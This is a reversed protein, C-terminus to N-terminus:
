FVSALRVTAIKGNADVEGWSAAAMGSGNMSLFAPGGKDGGPLAEPEQRSGDVYRQYVLPTAGGSGVTAWILMLSGHGDTALSPALDAGLLEPTTSHATVKWTGSGQDLRASYVCKAM